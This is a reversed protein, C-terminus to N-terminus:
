GLLHKEQPQDRAGPINKMYSIKWRLMFIIKGLSRLAGGGGPLKQNDVFYFM